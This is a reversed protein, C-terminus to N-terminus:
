PRKIFTKIEGPPIPGQLDWSHLPTVVRCVWVVAAGEVGGSRGRSISTGAPM